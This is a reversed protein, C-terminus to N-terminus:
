IKQMDSKINQKRKETPSIGYFKKFTNSFYYVNDFGYKQSIEGISLNTKVIDRSSLLMKLRNFYDIPSYGTEKRFRRTLASSSLAAVKSVDALTIKKNINEMFFDHVSQIPESLNNQSKETPDIECCYELFIDNLIHNKMCLALEDTRDYIESFLSINSKKRETNVCNFKGRPLLQTISNEEHLTFYILYFSCPELVNRIFSSKIPFFILDGSKAVFSEETTFSCFFSGTLLILLANQPQHGSTIEFEKRYLYASSLYKLPEM